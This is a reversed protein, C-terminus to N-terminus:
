RGSRAADAAADPQKQAAGPGLVPRGPLLGTMRADRLVPYGNVIVHVIGQPFQHPREFTARDIVTQDDFITIDAVYGPRLLGRDAFRFATAPLSTMKRVADPLPIIKRERVYHGLVRANTGYGRPHPQGTGFDRIASDSAVAVLPCQLIAEVEREDMSHLVCSAGGRRCLDIVVRYQEEMTPASLKEPNASLLEVDNSKDKERLKIIQAAEYLNRGILSPEARCSAIVVYGLNARGRKVQYNQRMDALMKEVQE